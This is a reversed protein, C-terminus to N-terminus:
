KAKRGPCVISNQIKFKSNFFRPVQFGPVQFGPVRSGPVRSGPVKLGVGLTYFL